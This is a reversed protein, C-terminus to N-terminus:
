ERLKIKKYLLHYRSAVSSRPRAQLLAWVNLNEVITSDRHVLLMCLQHKFFRNRSNSGHSIQLLLVCVVTAEIYMYM